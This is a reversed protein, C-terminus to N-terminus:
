KRPIGTPCSQRKLAASRYAANPAGNKQDNGWRDVIEFFFGDGYYNGSMPLPEFGREKLRAATALLDASGFALNLM